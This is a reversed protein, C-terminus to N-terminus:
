PLRPNSMRNALALSTGGISTGATCAAYEDLFKLDFLPVLAISKSTGVKRLEHITAAIAPCSSRFSPVLHAAFTLDVESAVSRKTIKRDHDCVSCAFTRFVGQRIRKASTNTTMLLKGTASGLSSNAGVASRAPQLRLGADALRSGGGFAQKWGISFHFQEQM